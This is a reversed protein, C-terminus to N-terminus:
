PNPAPMTTAPKVLFKQATITTMATTKTNSFYAPHYFHRFFIRADLFDLLYIAADRAWAPFGLGAFPYAIGRSIHEAPHSLMPPSWFSLASDSFYHSSISPSGFVPKLSFNHHINWAGVFTQKPMTKSVLKKVGMLNVTGERWLTKLCTFLVILLTWSPLAKSSLRSTLGGITRRERLPTKRLCEGLRFSSPCAM